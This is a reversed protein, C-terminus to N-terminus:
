PLLGSPGPPKNFVELFLTFDPGGVFGDGNMDSEACDPDEVPGVGPAVAKNFCDLFLTFEAIFPELWRGM